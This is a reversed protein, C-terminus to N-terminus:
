QMEMWEVVIGRGVGLEEVDRGPWNSGSSPDPPMLALGGKMEADVGAIFDELAEDLSANIGGAGQRRATWSFIHGELPIPTDM